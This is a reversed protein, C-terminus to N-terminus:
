WSAGYGVPKWAAGNWELHVEAIVCGNKGKQQWPGELRFFLRSAARSDSRNVLQWQTAPVPRKTVFACFEEDLEPLCIGKSAARLFADAMREPGRSRFPNLITTGTGEGNYGGCSRSDRNRFLHTHVLVPKTVFM